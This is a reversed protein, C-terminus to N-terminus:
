GQPPRAGELLGPRTQKSATGGMSASGVYATENRPSDDGTPMTAPNRGGRGRREPTGTHPSLLTDPLGSDFRGETPFPGIWRARPLDESRM